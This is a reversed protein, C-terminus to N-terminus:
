RRVGLQVIPGSGIPLNRETAITQHARALARYVIVGLGVKLALASVTTGETIEFDM